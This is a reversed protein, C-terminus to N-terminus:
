QSPFQTSLGSSELYNNMLKLTEFNLENFQFQPEYITKDLCRQELIDSKREKCPKGSIDVDVL